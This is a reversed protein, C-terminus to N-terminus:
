IGFLKSLADLHEKSGSQVKDPVIRAADAARAAAMARGWEQWRTPKGDIFYRHGGRETRTETFHRGNITWFYRTSM